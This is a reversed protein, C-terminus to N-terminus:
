GIRIKRPTEKAIKPMRLTLVGDKLEAATEKDIVPTPLAIRRSMSNFRLEKRYFRETKEEKEAKHEAKITLVNDHIEAAIDETKFGPVAARVLVHSETESIDVPLTGEELRAVTGPEIVLPENFFRELLNSFPDRRTTLMTM